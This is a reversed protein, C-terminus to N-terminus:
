EEGFPNALTYNVATIITSKMDDTIAYDSGAPYLSKSHHLVTPISDVNVADISDLEMLQAYWLYAVMLRGYDNVHTYDRYIEPQTCGLVDQAYQTVTASALIMSFTDSGVFNNDSDVIYEKTCEIIKDFLVSQDYKGDDGAFYYEHTTRWSTPNPNIYPANDNLYLEYTDPNAWVMHWALKPAYDQHELLYNIVTEFHSLVYNDAMGARHNMQQMVIIDWQEDELATLAPTNYIVDWSGDANSGDNKHYSYAATNNTVYSAHQQMNCGSYYLAGIVVKQDPAETQFVHYLLNTADLGHSNGLVLVKLTSDEENEYSATINPIDWNKMVSTYTKYMELVTNSQVTSLSDWLQDVGQLQETLSRSVVEGFLYRGDTTLIYANGYVPTNANLRNRADSNTTKMIGKLLTSNTNGRNSSEGSEFGTIVSYKCLEELNEANPTALLSLAVGFSEVNSAVLEDGAFNSKYYIGTEEARLNMAYIQLNVRHFSYAGSENIALYGDEALDSDVPVGAVTGTVNTLKGYKGDAVTYDDTYNDMGYLTCGENVTVKGTVSNGNLALYIDKDVVVDEDTSVILSIYGDTYHDIAEQLTSYSTNGTSDAIGAVSGSRYSSLVLQNEVANVYYGDGNTCRLTAQSMDAGSCIGVVLNEAIAVNATDFKVNANGTYTGNVTLGKNNYAFFIEDIKATGSLSVASTSAAAYVCDGATVASGATITGGYVNLTGGAYVHVAGGTKGVSGGNITGGYINCVARNQIAIVGGTTTRMTSDNTLTYTGGYINLTGDTDVYMAGGAINNSAAASVATIGGGGISDMISVTVGEKGPYVARGATTLTRGHLDLCLTVGKQIYLQSSSSTTTYDKDLYYHKHVASEGDALKHTKLVVPEWDVYEKCHECYYNLTEGEAAASISIGCILLALVCLLVFYKKKM